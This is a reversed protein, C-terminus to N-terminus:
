PRDSLRHVIPWQHPAPASLVQWRWGPDRANQHSYFSSMLMHEINIPSPSSGNEIPSNISVHPSVLWQIYIPTVDCSQACQIIRCTKFPDHVAKTVLFRKLLWYELSVPVKSGLLHICIMTEEELKFTAVFGTGWNKISYEFCRWINLM